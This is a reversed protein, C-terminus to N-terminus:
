LNQGPYKLIKRLYETMVKILYSKGVGAGGSLFIYYPDPKIVDNENALKSEMAHKAVVNFLEQQKWNLNSCMNYFMETSIVPDDTTTSPVPITNNNENNHDDDDPDQDILDPNLMGYDNDIDSDSSESESFHRIDDQNIDYKEFDYNHRLINCKIVDTVSQFKENYTSCNGKIQDETRWPLYLQLLTMYYQEPDKVKSIKHYRMVCPRSRKKMKGMKNKLSIIDCKSDDIDETANVPMTYNQMEESEVQTELANNSIYSTAFDAYCIDELNDPRNAYKELMNNKYVNTDDPDMMDIISQDKLMRTRNEKVGTPIYVVDINSSRLPM